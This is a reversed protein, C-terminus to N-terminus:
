IPKRVIDNSSELLEIWNGCPDEAFALRVPGFERPVVPFNVNNKSLQYYITDLDETYWGLHDIIRETSSSFPLIALIFMIKMTDYELVFRSDDWECTSQKGGLNSKYWDRLEEPEAGAINIHTYGTKSSEILEFPVGWPDRVRAYHHTLKDISGGASQWNTATDSIKLVGIGISDIYGNKSEPAVSKSQIQLLNSGCYLNESRKTPQTRKAPTYQEHWKAAVERDTLTIHVHHWPLSKMM